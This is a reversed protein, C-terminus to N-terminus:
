YTSYLIIFINSPLYFFAQAHLSTNDFPFVSRSPFVKVRISSINQQITTQADQLRMNTEKLSNVTAKLDRIQSGFTAVSSSLAPVNALEPAAQICQQVKHLGQQIHALQLIMVPIYFLRHTVENRYRSWFQLCWM